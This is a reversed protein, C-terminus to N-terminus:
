QYFGFDTIFEHTSKFNLGNSLLSGIVFVITGIVVTIIINKVSKSM